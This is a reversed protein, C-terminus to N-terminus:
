GRTHSQKQELSRAKGRPLSLGNPLASAAGWAHDTDNTGLGNWGCPLQTLGALRPASRTVAAACLRTERISVTTSESYIMPKASYQTHM